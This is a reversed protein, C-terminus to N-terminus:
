QDGETDVRYTVTAVPQVKLYDSAHALLTDGNSGPLILDTRTFFKREEFLALLSDDLAMSLETYTESQARGNSIPPVPIELDAVTDVIAGSNNLLNTSDRDVMLYAHGGVPLRNWVRIRMSGSQVQKLENGEVRQVDGPSHVTDMTFALYARGEVRLRITDSPIVDHVTGSIVIHGTSSVSDPYVAMLRALGPIVASTDYGLPLDLVTLNASDLMAAGQWTAFNLYADATAGTVGRVVRVRAEVMTPHVADWGEPPHEVEQGGEVAPLGLNDLEGTYYRFSIRDTLVYAHIEAGGTSHLRTEVRQPRTNPLRIVYGTLDITTDARAHGPLYLWVAMTDGRPSVMNPLTTRASDAVDSVNEVGLWLTGHAVTANLLRHRYGVLPRFSTTDTMWSPKILTDEIPGIVLSDALPIRLEAFAAFYLLSDEDRFVSVSDVLDNLSYTRVGLPVSLHVDWSLNGPAQPLTCGCAITILLLCGCLFRINRQRCRSRMNGDDM